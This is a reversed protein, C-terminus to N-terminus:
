GKYFEVVTEVVHDKMADTLEPYVPLSIVERAAAEAEPFSGAGCGLGRFCEQLHLPIPYYVANGIGKEKLFTNLKDRDKARLTYQNYIHYHRDGGAKYAPVPTQVLGRGTLESAAFARDYYDANRRRGDSWGDLYKLKVNLIAAQLADLRFNGGVFKHFYSSPAGHVRLLKLKDALAPDGALVMGADGFAGLNKSPFFSFCGLDGLSGCRRGKYEAGISQAGDEIVPIGRRRSIELIPDMDAMQGFLHVPLIAKTRPTIAAEVRAPDINFTAPDIDVFVPRANLRHIVGGTAFFTFPSTIVEDGPRIDIAMLSILLADTGSSVGVASPSGSYAAVAREFEEVKPGMIFYQADCVEDITKRIEERLTRYQAKLDLLPVNMFDM